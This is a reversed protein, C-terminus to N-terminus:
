KEVWSVIIFEDGAPSGGRALAIDYHFDGQGSLRVNKAAIAGYSDAQGVFQVDADPAYITGCFSSQGSFSFNEGTSYIQLNSPTNNNVIGQGSMSVDGTVYITTGGTVTIKSQGSTSISTFYYTGPPITIETQGSLKLDYAGPSFIAPPNNVPKTIVIAANGNVAQATTVDDPDIETLEHELKAPTTSGTVDAQGSTSVSDGPGPTANGEIEAQGSLTIDDNSGVDGEDGSNAISYAGLASDYSDVHGQGSITLEEDSFIGYPFLYDPSLVAEVTRQSEPSSSSPSYGISTVTVVTTGIGSVSM